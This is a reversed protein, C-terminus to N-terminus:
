KTKRWNLCRFSAFLIILFFDIISVKLIIDEFKKRKIHYLIWKLLFGIFGVVAVGIASIEPASNLDLLKICYYLSIAYLIVAILKIIIITNTVATTSKNNPTFYTLGFNRCITLLLQIRHITNEEMITAESDIFVPM